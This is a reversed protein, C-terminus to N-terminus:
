LGAHDLLMRKFAPDVTLANLGRRTATGARVSELAKKEEPNLLAANIDIAAATGARVKEILRKSELNCGSGSQVQNATIAM